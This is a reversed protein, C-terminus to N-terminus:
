QNQNRVLYYSSELDGFKFAFTMLGKPNIKLVGFEFQKNHRLVEKVLLANFPINKIEGDGNEIRHVFSVSNSTTSGITFQVEKEVFGEQTSVYFVEENIADRAKIFKNIFETDLEIEIDGETPNITPVNPIVQPDALNFKVDVNTDGIIFQVPTKNEQKVEFLVERDLISMLKNLTSTSYIGFEGVPFQFNNNKVKGVLTQSDNIFETHIGKGDSVWKVREINGGLHYRSIFNDIIRKDTM